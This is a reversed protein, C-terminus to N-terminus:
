RDIKSLQDQSKLTVTKKAQLVKNWKDPNQGYLEKFLKKFDQNNM